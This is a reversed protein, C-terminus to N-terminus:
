LREVPSHFGSYRSSQRVRELDEKVRVLVKDIDDIGKLGTGRQKMEDLYGLLALTELEMDDLGRLAINAYVMMDDISEISADVRVDEPVEGIMDLAKQKEDEDPDVYLMRKRDAEFKGDRAKDILKRSRGASANMRRVMAQAIDGNVERIDKIPLCTVDDFAIGSIRAAEVSATVRYLHFCAVVKSHHATKGVMSLASRHTLRLRNKWTELIIRGAQEISHSALVYASALRPVPTAELLMTTDTLLETVKWKAKTLFDSHKMDIEAMVLAWN